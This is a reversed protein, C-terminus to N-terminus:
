ENKALPYIEYANERLWWDAVRKADDLGIAGDAVNRSLAGALARQALRLHGYAVDPLEWYDGGFALVKNAPVEGLIESMARETGTPSIIMCWALNLSVNPFAKGVAMAEDVWPFSLHFLDFRTDRFRQLLPVMNRVHSPTFNCWVGSYYGCHVAVTFRFPVALELVEALLFAQLATPDSCTGALVECLLTNGRAADVHTWPLLVMKLGIVNRSQYVAFLARVAARYSELDVVKVGSQAELGALDERKQVNSLSWIPMLSRCEAVPQDLEYNCNLIRVINGRRTLCREILGPRNEARIRESADRYTTEDLREIGYIDRLAILVARAYGTHRMKEFWPHFKRWRPELPAEWNMVEDHDAKSMGASMLDAGAYQHFLWMVDPQKALRVSEQRLHEHADVIPISEIHALIRIDM